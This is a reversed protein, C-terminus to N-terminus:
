WGECRPVFWCKGKQEHISLQINSALSPHSSPHTLRLWITFQRQPTPSHSHYLHRLRACRWKSHRIVQLWQIIAQIQTSVIPKCWRFGSPDCSSLMFFSIANVLSPLTSESPIGDRHEASSGGLRSLHDSNTVVFMCLGVPAFCRKRTFRYNTIPVHSYRTTHRISTAYTMPCEGREWNETRLQQRDREGAVWNSM